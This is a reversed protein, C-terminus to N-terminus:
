TSCFGHACVWDLMVKYYGDVIPFKWYDKSQVELYDGTKSLRLSHDANAFVKVTLKSDDNLGITNEYLAKTKRWDVQRDNEGFIALVPSSISKLVKDFDPVSIQLGSAEDYTNGSAMWNQQNKQYLKRYEEYERSGPKREVYPQGTLKQVIDNQWFVKSVKMYSELDAGSWFLRNQNVWANYVADIEEAPYGAVELSSRLLYGWNEYADTGSVSIWFKISPERNIVVPAIWGARSIGWLGVQDSGPENGQRLTKIASLVEEASSEIPQNINFEGESKGCGPKDWVVVSIGQSTFKSRFERYHDGAVVNTRGYGHVVIVISQAERDEPRSIIGNLRENESSVFSFEETTFNSAALTSTSLISNLSLAVICLFIKKM